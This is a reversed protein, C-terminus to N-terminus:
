NLLTTRDIVKYAYYELTFEDKWYIFKEADFDILDNKITDKTSQLYYFCFFVDKKLTYQSIRTIARKIADLRDGETKGYVGLIKCGFMSAGEFKLETEKLFVVSIMNGVKDMQVFSFQKNSAAYMDYYTNQIHALHKNSLEELNVMM